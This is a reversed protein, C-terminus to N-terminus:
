WGILRDFGGRDHHFEGQLTFMDDQGVIGANAIVVDCSKQPSNQVATDFAQVQDDWNSVDCKVFQSNSSNM